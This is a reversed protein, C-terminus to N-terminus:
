DMSFIWWSFCDIQSEWANCFKGQIIPASDPVVSMIASWCCCCCCCDSTFFIRLNSLFSYGSLSEYVRDNSFMSIHFYMVFNFFSMIRVRGRSFMNFLQHRNFWMRYELFLYEETPCMKFSKIVIRVTTHSPFLVNPGYLVMWLYQWMSWKQRISKSGFLFTVNLGFLSMSVIDRDCAQFDCFFFFRSQFSSTDFLNCNDNHCESCSGTSWRNLM